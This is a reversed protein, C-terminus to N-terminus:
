HRKRLTWHSPTLGYTQNDLKSILTQQDVAARVDEQTAWPAMMRGGGGGGGGFGGGWGGNGFLSAVILLGILGGWGGFMDNGSGGGGGSNCNSGGAADMGMAFGMGFNDEM